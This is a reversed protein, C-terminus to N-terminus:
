SVPSHAQVSARNELLGPAPAGEAGARTAAAHFLTLAPHRESAPPVCMNWQARFARARLGARVPGHACCGRIHRM